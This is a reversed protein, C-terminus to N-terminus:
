GQEHIVEDDNLYKNQLTINLKAILPYIFVSVLYTIFVGELPLFLRDYLSFLSWKLAMAGFMFLAFVLWTVVFPKTNIFSAKKASIIDTLVLVLVNIGLPANTFYDVVVGLILCSFIGFLDNRYLAWFYVCIMALDPKFFAPIPLHMPIFTILVLLLSSLFPLLAKLYAIIMESATEKM